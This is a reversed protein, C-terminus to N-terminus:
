KIKPRDRKTTHLHFSTPPTSEYAKIVKDDSIIGYQGVLSTPTPSADKILRAAGNISSLAGAECTQNTLKRVEKQVKLQM